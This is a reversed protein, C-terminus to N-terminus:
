VNALNPSYHQLRVSTKDQAETSNWVGQHHKAGCSGTCFKLGERRREHPLAVRQTILPSLAQYNWDL